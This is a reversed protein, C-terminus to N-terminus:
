ASNLILLVTLLCGSSRLCTSQHHGRFNDALFRHEYISYSPYLNLPNAQVFPKSMQLPLSQHVCMYTCEAYRCTLIWCSSQLKKMEPGWCYKLGRSTTHQGSVTMIRHHLSSIGLSDEATPTHRFSFVKSRLQRRSSGMLDQISRYEWCTDKFSESHQPCYCLIHSLYAAM